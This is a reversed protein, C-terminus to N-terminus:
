IIKPDFHYSNPSISFHSKKSRSRFPRSSFFPPISTHEIGGGTKLDSHACFSSQLVPHMKIQRGVVGHQIHVIHTELILFFPTPAQGPGCPDVQAALSSLNVSLPYTNAQHVSTYVGAFWVSSLSTCVPFCVDNVNLVTHQAASRM